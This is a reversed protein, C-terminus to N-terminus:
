FRDYNLYRSHLLFYCNWTSHHTILLVHCEFQREELLNKGDDRNRIEVEKEMKGNWTVVSSEPNRNWTKKEM